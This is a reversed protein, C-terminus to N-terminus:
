NYNQRAKTHTKIKVWSTCLFHTKSHNHAPQSGQGEQQLGVRERWPGAVSEWALQAELATSKVECLGGWTM